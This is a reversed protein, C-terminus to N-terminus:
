EGKFLLDGKAPRGKRKRATIGDRCDLSVFCGDLTIRHERRGGRIKEACESKM